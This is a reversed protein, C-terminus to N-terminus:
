DDGHALRVRIVDGWRVYRQRDAGVILIGNHNGGVDRDRSMTWRRGDRLTVVAEDDSREIEAVLRLPIWSRSEGVYGDLTEFRSREDVDYRLEGSLEGEATVVTGTLAASRDWAERGPLSGSALPAFTVRELDEWAVLIRGVDVGVVILGRNDDNVDNTGELVLERGDRAVVRSQNDLPEITVITGFELVVEEGGIEGDLMETALREDSDWALVGSLEGFRTEARGYLQPPFTPHGEPATAFVVARVDEYAVARQSGDAVLIQLEADLDNSGGATELRVGDRLVVTTVGDEVLLREIAGFEVAFDTPRLEPPSLWKVLEITLKGIEIQPGPQEALIADRTRPDLSSLDLPDRSRGNFHQVWYQEEAGWNLAGELTRGDDTTVTGFLVAPDAAVASGALLAALGTLRARLRKEM